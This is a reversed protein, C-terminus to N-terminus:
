YIGTIVLIDGDEQVEFEHGIYKTFDIGAFAVGSSLKVGPGFTVGGVRTRRKPELSGDSNQTFITDFPVRM